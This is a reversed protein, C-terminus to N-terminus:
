SCAARWTCRTSGPTPGSTSTSATPWRASGSTSRTTSSSRAGGVRRRQARRRGPGAPPRGRAAPRGRDAAQRRVGAAAHVLDARHGGVPLVARGPRGRAPARRRHRAVAPGRRLRVAADGQARGHPLRAPPRAAVGDQPVAGAHRRRLRPRVVARLGGRRRDAGGVRCWRWCRARASARGAGVPVDGPQAHDADRAAGVGRGGGAAARRARHVLQHGAEEELVPLHRPNEAWMPGSEMVRRAAPPRHLPDRATPQGCPHGPRAGGEAPSAGASAGRATTASRRRGPSRALPRVSCTPHSSISADDVAVDHQDLGRPRTTARRGSTSPTSGQDGRHDLAGPELPDLRPRLRPRGRIATRGATAARSRAQARLGRM